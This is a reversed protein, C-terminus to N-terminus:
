STGCVSAATQHPPLSSTQSAPNQQGGSGSQLSAAGPAAIPLCGWSAPAGEPAGGSGQRLQLEQEVGPGLCGWKVLTPTPSRIGLEWGEGPERIM